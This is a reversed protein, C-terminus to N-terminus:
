LGQQCECVRIPTVAGAPHELNQSSSAKPSAGLPQLWRTSGAPGLVAGPNARGCGDTITGQKPPQDAGVCTQQGPTNAGEKQLPPSPGLEASGRRREAGDAPSDAGRHREPGECLASKNEATSLILEGKKRKGRGGSSLSLICALLFSKWRPPSQCLGSHSTM